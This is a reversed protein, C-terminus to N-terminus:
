RHGQSYRRPHRSGVGDAPCQRASPPLGHRLHHCSRVCVVVVPGGLLLFLQRPPASVSGSEPALTDMVWTLEHIWSSMVGVAAAALTIPVVLARTLAPRASAERTALFGPTGLPIGRLVATLARVLPRSVVAFLLCNLLGMGPYSTLVENLQEPDSIRDAHGIVLYLTVTGAVLVIAAIATTIKAGVTTSPPIGSQSASVLDERVVKKASRVGSLLSVGATTAIGIVMAVLPLPGTLVDSHPLGSDDVFHTYEPWLVMATLGGLLASVITVLFIEVIMIALAATPLVGAIQWLAVDQRQLRVCTSVVLRFSILGTLVTFGLAVGGMSVYAEQIEGRASAGAVILGISLTLVVMLVASTIILALWSAAGRAVSSIAIKLTM